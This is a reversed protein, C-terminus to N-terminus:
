SLARLLQIYREPHDWCDDHGGPLSIFTRPGKFPEEAINPLSYEDYRNHVIIQRGLSNWAAAMNQNHYMRFVLRLKWFYVARYLWKMLLQGYKGTERFLAAEHRLHLKTAKLWPRGPWYAVGIIFVRKAQHKAPILLAGGSHAFLIDATAIDKTISYGAAAFATRLARSMAPGENVGHIIAITQSM